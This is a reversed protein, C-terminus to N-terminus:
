RAMQTAEVWGKHRSVSTKTVSGDPQPTDISVRVSFAFLVYPTWLREQIEMGLAVHLAPDGAPQVITNVGEHWALELLDNALEKRNELMSINTLRKFLEPSLDKLLKLEGRQCLEKQQQETIEHASAWLYVHKVEPATSQIIYEIGTGVNDEGRELTEHERVFDQAEAMSKFELEGTKEGGNGGTYTYETVYIM